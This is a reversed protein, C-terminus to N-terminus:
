IRPLLAYISVSDIQVGFYLGIDIVHSFSSWKSSVIFDFKGQTCVFPADGGNVPDHHEASLRITSASTALGEATQDSAAMAWPHRPPPADIPPLVM